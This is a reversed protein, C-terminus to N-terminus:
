GSFFGIQGSFIKIESTFIGVESTSFGKKPLFLPSFGTSVPRRRKAICLYPMIRRFGFGKLVECCNRITLNAAIQLLWARGHIINSLKRLNKVSYLRDSLQQNDQRKALFRPPNAPFRNPAVSPFLM